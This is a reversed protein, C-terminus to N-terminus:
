CPILYDNGWWQIHLILIQLDKIGMDSDLMFFVM